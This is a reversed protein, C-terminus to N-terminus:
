FSIARSLARSKKKTKKAPSRYVCGSLGGWVLRPGSGGVGNKNSSSKKYKEHKKKQFHWFTQFHITKIFIRFKRFFDKKILKSIRTLKFTKTDLKAKAVACNAALTKHTHQSQGPRTQESLCAPRLAALATLQFPRSVPHTAKGNLNSKFPNM